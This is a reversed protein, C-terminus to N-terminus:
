PVLYHAAFCLVAAIGCVRYKAYPATVHTRLLDVYMSPLTRNKLLAELAPNILFSFAKMDADVDLYSRRECVVAEQVDPPIPAIKNLATGIETEYALQFVARASPIRAHTTTVAHMFRVRLQELAYDPLPQQLKEEFLTSVGVWCTQDRNILVEFAEAPFAM